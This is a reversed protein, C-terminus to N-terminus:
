EPALLSYLEPAREVLIGLGSEGFRLVEAAHQVAEPRRYGFGRQEDALFTAIYTLAEPRSFNGDPHEKAVTFALAALVSRLDELSFTNPAAATLFAAKRRTAPHIAILHNVLVRYAEFRNNPLPSNSIKLYILLGLLLPTGALDVLGPSKRIEGVLDEAARSTLREVDVGAELPAHAEFYQRFWVEAVAKQQASSLEALHTSGWELHFANLKGFAAPRCTAVVPCSRQAVLISIQALAVAASEESRYEDLGDVLLLLRDDQLASRVSAAMSDQGLQHLWQELVDDLSKASAEERALVSTWYAFPVWIPLRTAHERSFAEFRPNPSLLDLALFRLLTSKGIGPGGLLIARRNERLWEGVSRRFGFEEERDVTEAGSSRSSRSDGGTQFRRATLLRVRREIVDPVIYRQELPVQQPQAANIPLGPDALKFISQYLTRLDARLQAAAPGDLRAGLDGAVEEDGCFAKAWARGFFDDVLRPHSKLRLNLEEADWTDFAIQTQELVQRQVEVEDIRQQGRLSERTCLIFTSTKEVWEGKLFDQVAGAIKAPGFQGENKCQYVFYKPDTGKKAYLDIGEQEDGQSGYFRCFEIEAELRVLRLCLREFNQWTIQEFPLDQLKSQVPPAPCKDPDLELFRPVTRAKPPM